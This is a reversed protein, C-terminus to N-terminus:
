HPLFKTDEELQTIRAEHDDIQNLKKDIEHLVAAIDSVELNLKKEIRQQGEELRKTSIELDKMRGELQALAGKVQVKLITMGSRTREGEAEVEERIVNRVKELLQEDTM